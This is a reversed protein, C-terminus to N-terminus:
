ADDFSRGCSKMAMDAVRMKGQSVHPKGGALGNGFNILCGSNEIRVEMEGLTRNEQGRSLSNALLDPGAPITPNQCDVGLFSSMPIHGLDFEISFGM